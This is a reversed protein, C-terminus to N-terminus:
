VSILPSDRFFEEETLYDGRSIRQMAEKLENLLPKNLCVSIIYKLEEIEQKLKEVESFNQMEM